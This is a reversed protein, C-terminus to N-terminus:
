DQGPLPSTPSNQDAADLHRRLAAIDHQLIDRLETSMKVSGVHVVQARLGSDRQIEERIAHLRALDIPVGVDAPCRPDARNRGGAAVIGADADKPDVAGAM